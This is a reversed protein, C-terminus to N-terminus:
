RRPRRGAAVYSSAACAALIATLEQKGIKAGICYVRARGGHWFLRFARASVKM